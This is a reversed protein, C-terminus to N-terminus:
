WQAVTTIKMTFVLLGLWSVINLVLCFIIWHIGIFPVWDSCEWDNSKSLDWTLSIQFFSHDNLLAICGHLPTVITGTTEKYFDILSSLDKSGRYRVMTTENVLLIAPFGRVGYRSFLSCYASATCHAAILQIFLKRKLFPCIAEVWCVLVLCKLMWMGLRLLLNKLLLTSYRLTCLASLKLYQDSNAQFHVGHLTSSSPTHLVGVGFTWSQIWLREVWRWYFFLYVLLVFYLDCTWM